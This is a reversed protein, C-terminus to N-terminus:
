SFGRLIEMAWGILQRARVPNTDWMSAAEGLMQAARRLERVNAEMPEPDDDGPHMLM